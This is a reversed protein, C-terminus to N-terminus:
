TKKGKTADEKIIIRRHFLDINRDQTARRINNILNGM